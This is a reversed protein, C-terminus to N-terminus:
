FTSLITLFSIRKSAEHSTSFFFVGASSSVFLGEYSSNQYHIVSWVSVTTSDEVSVNVMLARLHVGKIPLSTVDTDNDFAEIAGYTILLHYLLEM